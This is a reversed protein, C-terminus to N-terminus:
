YPCLMNWPSSCVPCFRSGDYEVIRRRFELCSECIQDETFRELNAGENDDSDNWFQKTFRELAPSAATAQKDAFREVESLDCPAAIRMGSPNELEDDHTVPKDVSPSDADLSWNANTITSVSLSPLANSQGVNDTALSQVSAGVKRAAPMPGLGRQHYLKPSYDDANQGRPIAVVNRGHKSEKEVYNTLRDQRGEQSVVKNHFRGGQNDKRCILKLFVKQIREVVSPPMPEGNEGKTILLHYHLGVGESDPGFERKIIFGRGAGETDLQHAIKRMLRKVLVREPMRTLVNDPINLTMFDGWWEEHIMVIETM